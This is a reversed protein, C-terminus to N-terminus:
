LGAVWWFWGWGASTRDSSTWNRSSCFICRTPHACSATPAAPQGAHHGLPQHRRPDALAEARGRDEVMDIQLHLGALDNRERPLVSRVLGREHPDAGSQEAGVRAPHTGIAGDAVARLRGPHDATGHEDDLCDIVKVEPENLGRVRRYSRVRRKGTTPALCEAYHLVTVTDADAGLRLVKGGADILRQLPSGSGYYDNWPPHPESASRWRRPCPTAQANAGALPATAPNAPTM